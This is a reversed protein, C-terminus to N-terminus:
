RALRVAKVTAGRFAVLADLLRATHMAAAPRGKPTTCAEGAAAQCSWHRCPLAHAALEGATNVQYRGIWSGLTAIM